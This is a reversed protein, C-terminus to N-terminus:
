FAIATSEESRLQERTMGFRRERESFSILAEKFEEIGFDPWFKESFYLETYALQWLLYNSLRKEGGTRILLDPEPIDSLCMKKALVDNDIQDVSLDGKKVSECVKKVAQVVDWRGGYNAAVNLMLKQNNRTNREVLKMKKKLQDPFAELDGIFSLCVGNQDLEGVEEELARVFLELLYRVEGKPRRWNESSFAFLTLFKIGIQAGYEVMDKVRDIGRLHGASRQLDHEMAWRGNGDMIVAVHQPVSLRPKGSM